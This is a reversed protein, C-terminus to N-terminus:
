GFAGAGGGVGVSINVSLGLGDLGSGVEVKVESTPDLPGLPLLTSLVKPGVGSPDGLEVRIAVGSAVGGPEVSDPISGPVTPEIM